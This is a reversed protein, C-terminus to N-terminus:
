INGRALIFKALLNTSQIKQPLVLLKDDTGLRLENQSDDSILDSTTLTTPNIANSSKVLSVVTLIVEIDHSKAYIDGKHKITQYPNCYGKNLIRKDGDAFLIFEYPYNCGDECSGKAIKTWTHPNITVQM